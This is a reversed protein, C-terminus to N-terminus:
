VCYIDPMQDLNFDAVVCGHRDQGAAFTGPLVRVFKGPSQQRLLPWEQGHGSLVLDLLGDGNLDRVVSEGQTPLPAPMGAQTAIDLATVARAAGGVAVAGVAALMCALRQRM